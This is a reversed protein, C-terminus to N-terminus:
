YGKLAAETSKEAKKLTVTESQLNSCEARLPLCLLNCAMWRQM